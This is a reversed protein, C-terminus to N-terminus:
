LEGRFAKALISQTLKDTRKSALEIQKEVKDAYEFMKKVRNVIERQEEEPPVNVNWEKIKSLNLNPQNGGAAEQRLQSYQSLCYIYIYENFYDTITPNVLAACAQNTAAEIKLRGVQGRTKGEGYMAILITNIPFTKTNTEKIALPTIKEEADYIDCNQVEGTKVWPITGNLYYSENKRYPTSGTQVSFLNQVKCKIWSSLNEHEEYKDIDVVRSYLKQIKKVFETTNRKSGNKGRWEETLKGTVAASLVSQRFKSILRKAKQFKAQDSWCQSLISDIKKVIKEQYEIAHDPVEVGDLFSRNIGGQASGQFNKLIETQGNKSWLYWFLFKPLIKENTRLIFVHENVTAREYPFTKDVFSVKGTTAGDKVILIDNSEIKGKSM